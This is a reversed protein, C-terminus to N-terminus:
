NGFMAAMNQAAKTQYPKCVSNSCKSKVTTGKSNPPCTGTQFGGGPSCCCSNLFANSNLDAKLSGVADSAKDVVFMWFLIPGLVMIAIVILLIIVATSM